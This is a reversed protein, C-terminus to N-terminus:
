RRPVCFYFIQGSGQEAIQQGVTESHEVFGKRCPRARDTPYSGAPLRDLLSRQQQQQAAAEAAALRAKQAEIQRKQEPEQELRQKEQVRQQYQLDTEGPRRRVEDHTCCGALVAAAMVIIMTISNKKGMGGGGTDASCLSDSNVLSKTFYNGLRPAYRCPSAASRGSCQGVSSAGPM